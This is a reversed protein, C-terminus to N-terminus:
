IDARRLRDQARERPERVGVSDEAGRGRRGGRSEFGAATVEEGCKVNQDRVNRFMSCLRGGAKKKFTYSTNLM